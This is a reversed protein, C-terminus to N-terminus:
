FLEILAHVSRRPLLILDEHDESDLPHVAYEIGHNIPKFNFHQEGSRVTTEFGNDVAHMLRKTETSDLKIELGNISLRVREGTRTISWQGMDIAKSRQRYADEFMLEENTATATGSQVPSLVKALAILRTRVASLNISQKKDRLSSVLGSKRYNLNEEPIGLALAIKAVMQVYQDSGLNLEEDLSDLSEIVPQEKEKSSHHHHAHGLAKGLNGLNNRLKSHKLIHAISPRLAQRLATKRTHLVDHPVGLSVLLELLHDFITNASLSNNIAEQVDEEKSALEKEQQKTLHEDVIAELEGIVRNAFLRGKTNNSLAIAAERVGHRLATKFPALRSAPVGLLLILKIIKRQLITKFMDEIKAEEKDDKKDSDEKESLYELFNAFPWLRDSELSDGLLGKTSPEEKKKKAAPKKKKAKPKKESDTAEEESGSEEETGKSEEETDGFGGLSGLGDEEEESGPKEGEKGNEEEEGSKKDEGEEGPENLNFALKVKNEKEPNEPVEENGIPAEDESSVFNEDRDEPWEVSVIDFEGSLDNIAAEVDDEKGLLESMAKEFAEADDVNVYVKVIEGDNLELGFAITDVEEAKEQAQALLDAADRQNLTQNKDYKLGRLFSLNDIKDKPPAAQTNQNSSPLGGDNDKEVLTSLEQLLDNIM